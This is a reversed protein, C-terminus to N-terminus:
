LFLFLTVIIIIFTFNFIFDGHKVLHWAMFVYQSLPTYNWTDKVEASSPSKEIERKPWKVGPSLAGPV